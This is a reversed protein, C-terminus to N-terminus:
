REHLDDRNVPSYGLSPSERIDKQAQRASRKYQDDRSVLNSLEDAVLRSLSKGRTAALVKANQALEADIKITINTKM